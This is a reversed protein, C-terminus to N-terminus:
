SPASGTASGTSASPSCLDLLPRFVDGDMTPAPVGLLQLLTPAFALLPMPERLAGPRVGPGAVAFIGMPRHTGQRAVFSARRNLYTRAHNMDGRSEWAMGEVYLLLLPATAKTLPGYAEEPDVVQVKAHPFRTLAAVLEAKLKRRADPSMAPGWPNAYIGEPIPFSVARSSTWDVCQSFWGFTRDPPPKAGPAGAAESAPTDRGSMRRVISRLPVFRDLQVALDNLRPRLGEKTGPKLRLFGEQVLFRNTQFYGRTPGFGHDSLLFTFGEGGTRFARLIRDFASDVASWYAAFEDTPASTVSRLLDDYLDHQVRDTESLLVFLLDSPQSREMREVLAAKQGLNQVALPLRGKGAGDLDFAWPAGGETLRGQLDVPYTMPRGAPELMGSVFYGHVTPAPVAPFNVVGVRWGRRGVLDWIADRPRYTWCMELAGPTAGPATFGWEDLTAPSAGTVACHWAPITVPPHVSLLNGRVSRALFEQVHPLAGAHIAPDLLDWTGGDFGVILTRRPAGVAM